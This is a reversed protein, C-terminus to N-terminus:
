TGNKPTKLDHKKKVVSSNLGRFGHGPNAKWGLVTSQFGPHFKVLPPKPFWQFRMYIGIQPDNKEFTGFFILM